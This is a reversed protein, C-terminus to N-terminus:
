YLDLRWSGYGDINPPLSYRYIDIIIKQPLEENTNVGLTEIAM